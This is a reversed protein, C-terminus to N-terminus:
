QLKVPELFRTTAAQIFYLQFPISIADLDEGPLLHSGWFSSSSPYPYFYPLSILGNLFYTNFKQVKKSGGGEGRTVIQSM